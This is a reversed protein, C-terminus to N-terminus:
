KFSKLTKVYNKLLLKNKFKLIKKKNAETIYSYFKDNFDM